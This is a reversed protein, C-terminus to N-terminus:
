RRQPNGFYGAIGAFARLGGAGLAVAAQPRDRAAFRSRLLGAVLEAGAFLRIRPRVAWELRPSGVIALWPDFATFTSALDRGRGVVLAAEPGLCVVGRLARRGLIACGLVAINWSSLEVAGRSPSPLTTTGAFLHTLQLEARARSSGLALVLGLGADLRPLQASGVVGRVGVLGAISPPDPRPPPPLGPDASTRPDLATPREIPAPVIPTEVRELIAETEHVAAIPDRDVALVLATVDALAHCERAVYRRPPAEGRELELVYSGDGDRVVRAAVAPGDEGAGFRQARSWVAARDPCQAPAEWRLPLEDALMWALVWLGPM